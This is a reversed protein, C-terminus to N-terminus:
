PLPTNSGKEPQWLTRREWGTTECLHSWRTDSCAPSPPAPWLPLHRAHHHDDHHNEDNAPEGEEDGVDDVQKVDDGFAVGSGSHEEEQNNEGVDVGARVWKEVAEQRVVELLAELFDEAAVFWVTNAGGVLHSTSVRRGLDIM